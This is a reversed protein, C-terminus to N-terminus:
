LYVLILLICHGIAMNKLFKLYKLFLKWKCVFVVCNSLEYDLTGHFSCGGALNSSGCSHSIMLKEKLWASRWDRIRQTQCPQCCWLRIRRAASTGTRKDKRLYSSRYTRLALRVESSLGTLFMSLLNFYMDDNNSSHVGQVVAKLPPWKSRGSVVIVNVLRYVLVENRRNILYTWRFTYTARIYHREVILWKFM